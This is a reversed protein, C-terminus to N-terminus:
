AIKRAQYTATTIAVVNGEADKVQGHLVFDSKGHAELERNVRDVEEQALEVAITVDTAAFSKFRIDMHKVVPLYKTVDFTTLHLAGGPMEAIAFIAAAYMTGIHNENGKIPMLLRVRRPEMELVKLGMAKVGPIGEEVMQRARISDLNQWEKAQM